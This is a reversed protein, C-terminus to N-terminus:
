GHRIMHYDIDIHKTRNHFSQDKALTIAGQNDCAIPIPATPAMDLLIFVSCLWLGEKTAHFAAMYEAEISSTATTAQRKSSWSIM